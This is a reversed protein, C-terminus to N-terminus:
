NDKGGSFALIQFLLKDRDNTLKEYTERIKEDTPVYTDPKSKMVKLVKKLHTADESSLQRTEELYKIYLRLALISYKSTTRMKATYDIINQPSPLILGNFYKTLYM